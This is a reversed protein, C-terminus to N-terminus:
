VKESPAPTLLEALSNLKITHFKKKPPHIEIPQTYRVSLSDNNLNFILSNSKINHAVIIEKLAQAVIIQDIFYSGIPKTAEILSDLIINAESKPSINKLSFIPYKRM